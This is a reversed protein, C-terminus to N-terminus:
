SLEQICKEDNDFGAYLYLLLILFMLGGTLLTTLLDANNLALMSFLMIGTVTSKDIKKGISDIIILMLSFLVAYILMGAFGMNAYGSGFYGTNAANTENNFYVKGVLNVFKMNYPYEVHFIKGIIGESFYLFENNSIFEYYFFKLQAPVFLFRRIFLSAPRLSIGIKYIAYASICGVTGAYSIINMINKHKFMYMVFIIAISIFLYTKHATILYLLLQLTIFLNMLKYNKKKYSVAIMLPNIAKAQWGVLYNMLFPYKVNPRIDYVNLLNLADFSPIGNARIMSVYVFVTVSGILIYFINKAQKLKYMKTTPMINLLICELSFCFCVMNFYSTSYNSVAYLTFMPLIIIMFHLLLIISSSKTSNKPLMLCIILAWIFSYLYKKVNFDLVFNNYAYMEYVFYIYVFDIIIKFIFLGCFLSINKKRLLLLKKMIFKKNRM